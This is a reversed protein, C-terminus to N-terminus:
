GPRTPAPAAPRCSPWCRRLAQRHRPRAARRDAAAPLRRAADVLDQLAEREADDDLWRQADHRRLIRDVLVSAAQPDLGPLPYINGGFTGPALWAEAERSGLLVLTRGGRLRSLLTKLQAQEAPDLAHPIAAPAATISEANDLILLHRTARLLGAVQELQAAESMADARAQEVPSLLQARIERIIQAATWARDEYSFRFVQDVLGTRQWWWALHACCPPSGPGPWARSWCSTPQRAGALLRREIAQIDLDRGVFGYETAPEDGSTPRGSTSGAQEADDM